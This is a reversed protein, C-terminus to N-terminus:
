AQLVCRLLLCPRAPLVLLLAFRELVFLGLVFLVLACRAESKLQLDSCLVLLMETM